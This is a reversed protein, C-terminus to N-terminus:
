GEGPALDSVELYVLLYRAGLGTYDPDNSGQTDVFGLDGIFGLYLSRVIRNLNQCLVGGVILSNNVSLDLFLGFTKQYVKIQCPQNALSVTVQQAPVAQLPIALM